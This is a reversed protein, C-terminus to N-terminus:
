EAAPYTPGAVFTTHIEGVGAVHSTLTEGPRLMRKPNRANGVGAPTGTWILDGPLLTCAASLHAILEPVSFILDKSNGAQLIEDGVRCGLDLADPNSVESLSVIAPGIPSFGKFSKGLSFQPPVAALQLVRESLDQGVMLGAVHRWAGAAAANEVVDKIVVVIEVEFDVMATPLAVAAEPGTISSPYKTFVAPAKPPQSLGVELAHDRYNMGIGFVQRPMLVPAGLREPDVEFHAQPSGGVAEELADWREIADTVDETFRGNTLEALFAGGEEGLVALRDDYRALRV